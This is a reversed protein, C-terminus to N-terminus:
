LCDLAQCKVNRTIGKYDHNSGKLIFFRFFYKVANKRALQRVIKLGDRETFQSHQIACDRKVIQQYRRRIPKFPKMSIALILVTNPDIILPPNTEFPVPTVRVINFNDIIM